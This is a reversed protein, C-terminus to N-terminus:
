NTIQVLLLGGTKAGDARIKINKLGCKKARIPWEDIKVDFRVVRFFVSFYCVPFFSLKLNEKELYIVM